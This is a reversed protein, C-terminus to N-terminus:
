EGEEFACKVLWDRPIRKVEVQDPIRLGAARRTCYILLADDMGLQGIILGAEIRKGLGVEDAL